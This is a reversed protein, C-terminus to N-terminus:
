KNKLHDVELIMFLKNKKREGRALTFFPLVKAIGIVTFSLEGVPTLFNKSFIKGFLQLILFHKYNQLGLRSL